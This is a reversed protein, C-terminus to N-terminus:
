RRQLLPAPVQKMAPSRVGQGVDVPFAAFVAGHIFSATERRHRRLGSPSFRHVARARSPRWWHCGKHSASSARSASPCLYCTCLRFHYRM